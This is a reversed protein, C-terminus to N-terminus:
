KKEAKEFGAKLLEEYGQKLARVDYGKQKLLDAAQLARKGAKCHTYIITDKKLDKIAEKPDAGAKIKSLPLLEADKLHGADWEDKERVDLVVAKKEKLKAKVDDLSDKTHEAALAASTFIASALFAAVSKFLSRMIKKESEHRILYNKNPPFVLRDISESIGM